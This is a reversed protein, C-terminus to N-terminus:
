SRRLWSLDESITLMTAEFTWSWHDSYPSVEKVVSSFFMEHVMTTKVGWSELALQTDKVIESILERITTRDRICAYAEYVNGTAFPRESISLSTWLKYVSPDPVDFGPDDQEDIRDWRRYGAYHGPGDPRQRVLRRALLPLLVTNQGGSRAFVGSHESFPSILPEDLIKCTSIDKWASRPQNENYDYRYRYEKVIGDQFTCALGKVWGAGIPARLLKHIRVKDSLEVTHPRRGERWSTCGVETYRTLKLHKNHLVIGEWLRCTRSTSIQDELSPLYSLVETQIEVPLALLELAVRSASM